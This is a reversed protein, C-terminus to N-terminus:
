GLLQPLLPAAGGVLALVLEDETIRIAARDVAGLRELFGQCGREHDSADLLPGPGEVVESM